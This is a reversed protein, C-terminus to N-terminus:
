HALFYLGILPALFWYFFYGSPAFLQNLPDPFSYINNVEFVHYALAMVFGATLFALIFNQIVSLSGFGGGTIRKIFIYFPITAISYLVISLFAQVIRADAINVISQTYPFVLYVAYGAYLSLILSILASRGGRMAFFLLIITLVILILFNGGFLWADGAFSTALSGIELISTDISEM